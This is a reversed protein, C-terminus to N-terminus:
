PVFRNVGHNFQQYDCYTSTTALSRGSFLASFYGIGHRGCYVDDPFCKSPKEYQGISSMDLPSVPTDSDTKAKAGAAVLTNNFIFKKSSSLGLRAATQLFLMPGVAFYRMAVNLLKSLRSGVLTPRVHQSSAVIWFVSFIGVVSTSSYLHALRPKIKPVKKIVHSNTGFSEGNFSDVVVSVVLRSIALPCSFSLLSSVSSGIPNKRDISNSSAQDFQTLMKTYIM